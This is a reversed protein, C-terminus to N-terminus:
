LKILPKLNAFVKPGIGPVEQLQDISSFHRHQERYAVIRSALVPGVGPLSDFDSETGHNISVRSDQTGTQDISRGVVILQGDELREALNITAGVAGSKIGNAAAIADAVRSGVPLNVLGPKNVDGEIDVVIESTVISTTLETGQSLKQTLPAAIPRNTWAFAAIVLVFGLGIKMIPRLSAIPPDIINTQPPEYEPTEDRGLYIQQLRSTAIQAFDDRNFKM